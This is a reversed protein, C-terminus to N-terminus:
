LICGLNPGQSIVNFSVVTMREKIVLFVAIASLGRSATTCFYHRPQGRFVGKEKHTVVGLKTM